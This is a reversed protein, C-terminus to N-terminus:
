STVEFGGPVISHSHASARPHKRPGRGPSNVPPGRRCFPLGSQRRIHTQLVRVPEGHAHARLRDCGKIQGGSLEGASEIHALLSCPFQLAGEGDVRGRHHTAWARSHGGNLIKELSGRIGPGSSDRPIFRHAATEGTRPSAKM